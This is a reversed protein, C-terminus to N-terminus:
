KLLRAPIAMLATMYEEPTVEEGNIEYVRGMEMIVERDKEPIEGFSWIVPQVMEPKSPDPIEVVKGDIWKYFKSAESRKMIRGQYECRDVTM